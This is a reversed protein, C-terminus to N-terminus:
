PFPRRGRDVAFAGHAKLSPCLVDVQPCAFKAPVHNAPHNLV